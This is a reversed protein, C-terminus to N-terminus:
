YSYDLAGITSGNEGKGICPSDPALRFEERTLPPYNFFRDPWGRARSRAKDLAKLDAWKPDAMFSHPERGYKEQWDKLSGRIGLRLKANKENEPLAALAALDTGAPTFDIMRAEDNAPDVYYCNYDMDVSQNAHLCLKYQQKKKPFLNEGFLNNRIVMRENRPAYIKNITVGLFSNHTVTFTGTNDHVMMELHHGVFINNHIVVDSSAYSHISNVYNMRGDFLCNEVRIDAADVIRVQGFGGADPHHESQASFIFGRIVIHRRNQLDAGYPVLERAGSIDVREGRAAEFTIPAGPLGSRRPRITECYVGARVVVRDGPAVVACARGINRFPAAEGGAAADDGQPSVFYVRPKIEDAAPTTFEYTQDDFTDQKKLTAYYEMEGALGREPWAYNFSHYPTDSEPLVRYGVKYYYRTAPKLGVLTVLHRTDYFLSMDRVIVNDLKDPQLGYAVIQTTLGGRTEWALDATAATVGVARVDVFRIAKDAVPVSRGAGIDANNLGRGKCLSEATLRLDRAPANIFGPDLDVSSEDLGTAARWDALSPLARQALAAAPGAGINNFDCWIDKPADAALAIQVGNGRLINSTVELGPATADARLGAGTNFAVTNRTVRAGPSDGEIRIGDGANDIVENENLVVAASDRLSVGQRTAGRIRLGEIRLNRCATIEIGSERKGAADLIVVGKGHARLITPTGADPLQRVAVPETWTGPLIYLTQGAKLAGLARALTRWPAALSTGEAADDGAPSVFFVDGRYPQSGLCEQKKGASRHPSDSQLRLDRWAPDVFRADALTEPMYLLNLASKDARGGQAKVGTNREFLCYSPILGAATCQMATNRDFVMDIGPEIKPKGTVYQAYKSATELDALTGKVHIGTRCNWATNGRMTCGYFGGYFRIGYHDTDHVRNNELLCEQMYGMMGINGFERNFRDGCSYAECDVIRSRYASYTFIGHRCHHVICRLIACYDANHIFIGNKNYDRVVFGDIILGVRRPTHLYGPNTTLSVLGQDLVCADVVHHAMGRDDSPHVYLMKEAADYYFSAATDEAAFLSAVETYETDTDKEFVLYTPRDLPARFLRPRDKVPAWDTLRVSGVLETRGPYEARLTIPQEPTGSKEIFVEERYIGPGVILTDGPKLAEVGRKLTAFPKGAAGSNTDLGSKSVYWTDALAAAALAFLAVAAFPLRRTTSM